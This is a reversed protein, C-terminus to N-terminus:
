VTIWVGADNKIISVDAYLATKTLTSAGNITEAGNPDLIMSNSASTKVFRFIVNATVGSLAPLAFTINGSATNAYILHDSTTVTYNATKTLSQLVCGTLPFVLDYPIGNVGEKASQGLFPAVIYGLFPSFHGSSDPAIFYFQKSAVTLGGYLTYLLTNLTDHGDVFADFVMAGNLLGQRIVRGSLLQRSAGGMLAVPMGGREPLFDPALSTYAEINVQNALTSGFSFYTDTM